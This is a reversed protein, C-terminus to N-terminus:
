FEPNVGSVRELLVKKEADPIVLEPLGGKNGDLPLSRRIKIGELDVLKGELVFRGTNKDPLGAADRFNEVTRPDVTTFSEGFPKNNEGFVRFVKDGKKPIPLPIEDAKILVKGARGARIITAAGGPVFPTVAAASDLLVGGADIAADFYNGETLNRKLSIVGLSINFVDFATEL